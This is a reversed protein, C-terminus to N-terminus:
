SNKESKPDGPRLITVRNKHGNNGTRESYIVKKPTRSNLGPFELISQQEKRM